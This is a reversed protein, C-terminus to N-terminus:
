LLSCSLILADERVTSGTEAPYYGRREGVQVFGVSYYLSRASENSPRVELFCTDAGLRKAEKLLHKLMRRGYSQRRAVPHVCLTLLHSEGVAASLVGHALIRDRTALVWCEYGARLCDLFVRKSWPNPYSLEENRVVIDLDSPRM